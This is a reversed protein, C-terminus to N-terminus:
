QSVLFNDNPGESGLQITHTFETSVFLRSGQARYKYKKGVGTKAMYASARAFGSDVDLVGTSVFSSIAPHLGPFHLSKYHRPKQVQRVQEVQFEVEREQEVEEMLSSRSAFLGNECGARYRALKNAISRLSPHFNDPSNDQQSRAAGGYLEELM